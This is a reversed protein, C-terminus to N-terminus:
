DIEKKVPKLNARGVPTYNYRLNNNNTGVYAYLYM